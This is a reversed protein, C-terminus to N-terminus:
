SNHLSVMFLLAIPLWFALASAPLAFLLGRFVDFPDDRPSLPVLHQQRFQRNAATYLFEDDM